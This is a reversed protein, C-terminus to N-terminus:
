RKDKCDSLAGKLFAHAHKYNENAAPGLFFDRFLHPSSPGCVVFTDRDAAVVRADFCPGFDHDPLHSAPAGAMRFGRLSLAKRCKSSQARLKEGVTIIERRFTHYLAKQCVWSGPIDYNYQRNVSSGNNNRANTPAGWDHRAVQKRAELAGRV